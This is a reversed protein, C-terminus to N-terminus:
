SYSKSMVSTVSHFNKWDTRRFSTKKVQYDTKFCFPIIIILIDGLFVTKIWTLRDTEVRGNCKLVVNEHKFYTPM